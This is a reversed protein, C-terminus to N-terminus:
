KSEHLLPLSVDMLVLDYDGRQVAAVAEVGDPVADVAYGLKQLTRTVIERILENDEALLIKVGSSRARREEENLVEVTDANHGGAAGNARQRSTSPRPSPIRPSAVASLSTSPHGLSPVNAKTFSLKVTMTSGVGLESELLISGGM